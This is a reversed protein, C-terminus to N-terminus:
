AQKPELFAAVKFGDQAESRVKQTWYPARSKVLCQTNVQSYFAVSISGRKMHELGPVNSFIDDLPGLKDSSTICVWSM